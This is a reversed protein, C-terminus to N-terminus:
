FGACGPLPQAGYHSEWFKSMGGVNHHFLKLSDNISMFQSTCKKLNTCLSTTSLHRILKNHRWSWQVTSKRRPSGQMVEDEKENRHLALCQLKSLDSKTAVVGYRSQYYDDGKGSDRLLVLQTWSAPMM